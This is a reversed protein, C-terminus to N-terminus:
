MAQTFVAEHTGIADEYRTIAPMEEWWKRFDETRMFDKRFVQFFSQIHKPLYGYSITGFPDFPAGFFATIGWFDVDRQAMEGFMRSFPHIPGYLTDNCIVAEDYACLDEYGRALLGEKYATIDYGENPRIIVEDAVARVRAEGEEGVAGNIVVRLCSVESRLGKLFEDIYTDVIGDNDHMVYVALRKVGSDKLIM